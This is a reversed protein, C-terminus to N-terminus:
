TAANLCLKAPSGLGRTHLWAARIRPDSQRGKGASAESVLMGDLRM